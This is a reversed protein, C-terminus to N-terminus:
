QQTIIAIQTSIEGFKNTLFVKGNILRVNIEASVGYEKRIYEMIDNYTIPSFPFIDGNNFQIITAM